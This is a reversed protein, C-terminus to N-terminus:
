ELAKNTVQCVEYIVVAVGLGVVILAALFVEYYFINNQTIEPPPLFGFGISILCTVIALLCIFWLFFPHNGAKFPRIVDPKKYRLRLASAFLFLYYILALQSSSATLFWFASNVSPMLVFAICLVSFIVGQVLFLTVPMERANTKQLFRPLCNDQAAILLCRSSALLWVFFIGFSGIAISIVMIPEMWALHFAKLFITFAEIVGTTLGIEKPPIVASIALSAPIVTALILVAAIILARPYDKAPNKVDGAHVAIMEMGMLSFLLTIFLRLTDSNVTPVSLSHASFSIQSTHGTLLWVAGLLMIFVMPIIVGIITSATSIKSSITLGLCNLFTASWFVILLTILIYTKNEALAPSILYAITVAIFSLITPYWIIQYLWQIWIALFASRRGFAERVWVYIGGTEPWATALEAAVLASPIFFTVTAILYYFLLSSGYQANAPLNKISDIAIVAMMVLKFVTLPKNSKVTVEHTM